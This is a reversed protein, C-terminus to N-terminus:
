DFKESISRFLESKSQFSRVPYNSSLGASGFSRYRSKFVLMVSCLTHADLKASGSSTLFNRLHLSSPPVSSSHKSFPSLPTPRHFSSQESPEPGAHASGGSTM